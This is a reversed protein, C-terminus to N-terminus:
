SAQGIPNTQAHKEDTVQAMSRALDRAWAVARELEGQVLPGEKSAVLFSEPPLIQAVHIKKVQKAIGDAASGTLWKPKNLRTDFCAVAFQAPVDNLILKIFTRTAPTLQWAQTPCGIMLLGVGGMDNLQAHDVRLANAPGFEELAKTMAKAIRETNGYMSDYLVLTKM